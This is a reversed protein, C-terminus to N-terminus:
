IGLLGAAATKTMHDIHEQPIGNDLLYQLYQELANEWPPNEVQGGDTSILINKYGVTRVAELNDALNSKYVGHGMPQAFCHELLVDYDRAIKVQDELTMGVLWFEPHNVVIKDIGAKKAEEVVVFIEAPALHATALIGGNDKVIRFIERLPPVVKGGAVCDIGGSAPKKDHNVVHNTAHTTPLWVIKAGLKFASEVAAPNLGGVAKNLVIGGYMTFNEAGLVEKAYLNALYARNMTVGHHSKIAVARAGAKVAARALDFDTYRRERIDPATHIHLDIIGKLSAKAM